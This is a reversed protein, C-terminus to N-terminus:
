RMNKKQLGEIQAQYREENRKLQEEMEDLKKKQDQLRTKLEANQIHLDEANKIVAEKRRKAEQLLEFNRLLEHLSQKIKDEYELLIQDKKGLQEKLDVYKDVYEQLTSRMEKAKYKLVFYNEKLVL